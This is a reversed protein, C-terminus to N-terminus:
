KVVEMILLIIIAWLPISFLVAYFAGRWLRDSVVPKYEMM